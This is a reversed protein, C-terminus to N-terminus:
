KYNNVTLSRHHPIVVGKLVVFLPSSVCIIHRLDRIHKKKGRKRKKFKVTERMSLAAAIFVSGFLADPMTQAMLPTKKKREENKQLWSVNITYIYHYDIFCVVPPTAAVFVPGFLALHMTQAM